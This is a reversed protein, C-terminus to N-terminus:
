AISGPMQQWYAVIKGKRELSCATLLHDEHLQLSVFLISIDLANKSDKQCSVLLIGDPM